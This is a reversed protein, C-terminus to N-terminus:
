NTVEEVSLRRATVQTGHVQGVVRLRVGVMGADLPSATVTAVDDPEIGTVTMPLSLTYSRVLTAREGADKAADGGAPRVRAAGTYVVVTVDAYKGTSESLIRGTTRTVTVTDTMLSEALARGDAVTQDVSV